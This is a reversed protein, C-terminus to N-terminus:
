EGFYEVYNKNTEILRICYLSGSTMKSIGPQLINWFEKVIIECSCLKGKMFDVQENLNKHDVKEIIENKILDGLKKMDIVFGTNPDPLGKVTVILEFNHGHYYENACKGFVEENKEKSWNPNYLKHAANFHEKRSVYLM